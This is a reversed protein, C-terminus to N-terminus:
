FFELLYIYGIFRSFFSFSKTIPAIIDKRGRYALLIDEEMKSKSLASLLRDLDKTCHAFKSILIYNM